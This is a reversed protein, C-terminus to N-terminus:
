NTTVPTSPGPEFACPGLSNRCTGVPTFTVAHTAWMRAACWAGHAADHGEAGVHRVVAQVALGHRLGEIRRAAGARAGDSGVVLVRRRERHFGGAAAPM